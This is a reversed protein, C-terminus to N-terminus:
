FPKFLITGSLVVMIKITISDEFNAVSLVILFLFLLISVFIRYVFSTGLIISFDKKRDVFHNVIVTDIGLLSIATFFSLISLCYSIIGYQDPGFYRAVWVSVTLGLFLRLIKEVFLWSTNNFYKKFESSERFKKISM